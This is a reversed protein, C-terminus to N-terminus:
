QVALTQILSWFLCHKNKRRRSNFRDKTPVKNERGGGNGGATWCCNLVGVCVDLSESRM